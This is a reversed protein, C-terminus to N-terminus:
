MRILMYSTGTEGYEQWCKINKRRLIITMRTHTFHSRVTTKVQSIVLSLSRRKMHKNVVRTDGKTFHRNLNKGKLLNHQKYEQQTTPTRQM